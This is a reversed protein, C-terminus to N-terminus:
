NVKLNSLITQRAFPSISNYYLFPTRLDKPLKYYINTLFISAVRRLEESAVKVDLIGNKYKTKKPDLKSLIDYLVATQCMGRSDFSVTQMGFLPCYDELPKYDVGIISGIYPLLAELGKDYNITGHPEYRYMKKSRLNILLYNAHVSKISLKVVLYEFKCINSNIYPLLYEINQLENGTWILSLGMVCFVNPYRKLLYEFSNSYYHYSHTFSDLNQINKYIINFICLQNNKNHGPQDCITCYRM